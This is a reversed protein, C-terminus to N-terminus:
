SDVDLFWPQCSILKAERPGAWNKEVVWRCETTNTVSTWFCKRGSVVLLWQEPDWTPSKWEKRDEASIEETEGEVCYCGVWMHGWGWEVKMGWPNQRKTWVWSLEKEQVREVKGELDDDNKQTLQYYGSISEVLSGQPLVQSPSLYSIKV